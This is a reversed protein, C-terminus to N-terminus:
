KNKHLLVSICLGGCMLNQAGTSFTNYLNKFLICGMVLSALTGYVIKALNVLNKNYYVKLYMM